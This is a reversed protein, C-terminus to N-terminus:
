AHYEAHGTPGPQTPQQAAFRQLQALHFIDLRRLRKADENRAWFDDFDLVAICNVVQAESGVRRLTPDDWLPCLAARLLNDIQGMAAATGPRALVILDLGHVAGEQGPREQRAQPSLLARKAEDVAAGLAQEPTVSEGEPAIKLIQRYLDRLFEADTSGRPDNGGAAKVEGADQFSFRFGSIFINPRM